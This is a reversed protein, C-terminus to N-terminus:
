TLGVRKISEDTQPIRVHGSKSHCQYNFAAFLNQREAESNMLPLTVLLAACSQFTTIGPPWGAIVHRSHRIHLLSHHHLCEHRLRANFNEYICEVPKGRSIFHLRVSIGLGIIWLTASLGPGTVYWLARLGGTTSGVEALLAAVRNAQSSTVM